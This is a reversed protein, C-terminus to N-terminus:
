PSKVEKEHSKLSGGTKSFCRNFQHHQGPRVPEARSKAGTARRLRLINFSSSRMGATAVEGFLRESNHCLPSTSRELDRSCDGPNGSYDVSSTVM